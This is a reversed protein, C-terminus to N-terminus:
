GEEKKLGAGLEGNHMNGEHKDRTANKNGELPETKQKAQGETKGAINEPEAKDDTSKNNSKNEQQM